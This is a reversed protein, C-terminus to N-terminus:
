RCREMALVIAAICATETRLAREGISLRTFGAAELLHRERDSWGRESGVALTYGAAPSLGGDEFFSGHPQVNDLAVRRGPKEPGTLWADVSEFRSVAPFRTDRAEIAGELMALRAGGDELLTTQLYSKEGLDTGFFAESELGLNAAERLIRRLQIPRAFGVGLRVPIRSSPPDNLVLTVAIPTTVSVIIGRGRNGGIIGADFSGGTTKHLTKLLHVARPDRPALEGYLLGERTEVEQPEFLILNM